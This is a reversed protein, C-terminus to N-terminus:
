ILSKYDEGTERGQDVHVDKEVVVNGAALVILLLTEGEGVNRKRGKEGLLHSACIPKCAKCWNKQITCLVRYFSDRDRVRMINQGTTHCIFSASITEKVPLGYTQVLYLIRSAFCM